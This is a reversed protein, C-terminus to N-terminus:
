VNKFWKDLMNECSEVMSDKYLKKSKWTSSASRSLQYYSQNSTLQMMIDRAAENNSSVIIANSSNCYESIEGVPTVIPVLGLKMAEIVSMAMGEYLSTQLYFSSEQAQIKIEEFSMENYFHVSNNLELKTSLKKLDRLEGGDSGIIKLIAEPYFQLIKSFIILSRSIGKEKGIRGWFIFNPKLNKKVIGGFESTVFSIIRGERAKLSYKFRKQLSSMSDGWVETTLFLMIRTVIFDVIHVDKESHIFLVVRTWPLFMKVVIGVLVSRWLSVILVDPKKLIVQRIAKIIKLLSFIDSKKRFIYEINFVFRNSSMNQITKAAVEVGGLADIPILYIINKM